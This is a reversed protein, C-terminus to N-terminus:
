LEFLKIVKSAEIRMNDLDKDNKVLYDVHEESAMFMESAHQTTASPVLNGERIIQVIHGHEMGNFFEVENKFRVDTIIVVSASSDKIKKEIHRIWFDEGYNVRVFDTGFMQLFKRHSFGTWQEDEKQSELTELDMDFMVSSIRKIPEALAFLDVQTGKKRLEEAMYGALTDKGARAKGHLAIITKKSTRGKLKDIGCEIKEKSLAFVPHLHSDIVEKYSYVNDKHHDDIRVEVKVERQGSTRDIDYIKISTNKYDLSVVEDEVITEKYEVHTLGKVLDFGTVISIKM